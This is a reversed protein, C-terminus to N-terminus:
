YARRQQTLREVQQRIRPDSDARAIREVQEVLRPAGSTALLTIARLRVEADADRCLQLLWPVADIDQLSPLMRVLDERVRPDPDFLRRALDLHLSTFGRRILEAQADAVAQSDEAHLQRMLVITEASAARAVRQEGAGPTASETGSLREIPSAAAPSRHETADPMGPMTRIDEPAGMLREPLKQANIPPVRPMRPLIEPSLPATSAVRPTETEEIPAESGPLMDIQLGGGPLSNADTMLTEADYADEDLLLRGGDLDGQGAIARNEVRGDQRPLAQPPDVTRFVIECCDIVRVRDVADSNIPWTVIRVALESADAQATPGFHDIRQALSEALIALRRSAAESPLRAWRQLQEQLIQKAARAVSERQSGLAEALVDIGPEELAAAQHLLIPANEDAVTDLQTRLQKAIYRAYPQRLGYVLALLGVTMALVVLPRKLRKMISRGWAPDRTSM